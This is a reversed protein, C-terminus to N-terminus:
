MGAEIRAAINKTVQLHLNIDDTQFAEILTVTLENTKINVDQYELEPRNVKVLLDHNCRNSFKARLVNSLHATTIRASINELAWKRPSYFKYNEKMNVLADVFFLDSTLCGTHENIYAKNVGVNEGLCIVPVDVFMSEFLSRNSGEKLSLLVNTKSESLKKILDERPLGQIYEFNNELNLSRIYDAIVNKGRGWHACILCGKYDADHNAVIYKVADIYRFIRKIFNMNAVYVSDFRKPLDHPKFIDSDVWNSAGFSLTKVQPFLSNLFIRDTIESSQVLCDTTTLLFSLIDPDAYGAWSPELIFVFNEDLNKLLVPNRLFYSITKTFAILFVGKQKKGDIIVPLSLIMSRISAEKIVVGNSILNNLQGDYSELLKKLFKTKKAGYHLRISLLILKYTAPMFGLIFTIRSLFYLLFSLLVRFYLFYITYLKERIGPHMMGLTKM